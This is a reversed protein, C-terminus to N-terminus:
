QLLLLFHFNVKWLHESNRNTSVLFDLLVTVTDFQLHVACRNMLVMM